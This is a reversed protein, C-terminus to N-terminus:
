ILNILNIFNVKIFLKLSEPWDSLVKEAVMSGTKDKFETIFDRLFQMDEQLSVPLLDVTSINCRTPFEGDRFSM